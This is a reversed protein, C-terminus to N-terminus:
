SARKGERRRCPRTHTHKCSIPHRELRSVAPLFWVCCQVVLFRDEASFLSKCTFLLSNCCWILVLGKETTLCTKKNSTTPFRITICANLYWGIRLVYMYLCLVDGFYTLLTRAHISIPWRMSIYRKIDFRMQASNELMIAFMQGHLCHIVCNMGFYSHFDTKVIRACQNKKNNLTIRMYYKLHIPFMVNNFANHM